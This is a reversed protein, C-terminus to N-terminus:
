RIIKQARLEAELAATRASIEIDLDTTDQASQEKASKEAESMAALQLQKAEEGTELAKKAMEALDIATQDNGRKKILRAKARIPPRPLPPAARKEDNPRESSKFVPVRPAYPVPPNSLTHQLDAEIPAPPFITSFQQHAADVTKGVNGPNAPVEQQQTVTALETTGAPILADRLKAPLSNEDESTVEIESM